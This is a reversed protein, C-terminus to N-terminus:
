QRAGVFTGSVQGGFHGDLGDARGNVSGDVMDLGDGSLAGEFRLDYVAAGGGPEVLTGDLDAVLYPNFRPDPLDRLVAGNSLVLQGEVPGAGTDDYINGNSYVDYIRGEITGDGAFTVTLEMAGYMARQESTTMGVGFGAVGEYRASGSTPLDAPDVRELLSLDARLDSALAAYDGYSDPASDGGSGGGSCASLLGAMGIFLVFDNRIM